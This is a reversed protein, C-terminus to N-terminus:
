LWATYHKLGLLQKQFESISKSHGDDKIRLTDDPWDRLHRKRMRGYLSEEEGEKACLNTIKETTMCYEITLDETEAVMVCKCDYTDLIIKRFSNNREPQSILQRTDHKMDIVRIQIKGCPARNSQQTDEPKKELMFDQPAQITEKTESNTSEQTEDSHEHESNDASEQSECTKDYCEPGTNNIPKSAGLRNKLSFQQLM